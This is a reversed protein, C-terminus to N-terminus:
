SNIRKLLYKDKTSGFVRFNIVKFREDDSNLDGLVLNNEHIGGDFPYINGELNIPYIEDNYELNGELYINDGIKLDISTMTANTEPNNKLDIDEKYIYGTMLSISYEKIKIDSDAYAGTAFSLALTFCLIM